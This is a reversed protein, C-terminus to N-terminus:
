DIEGLNLLAFNGLEYVKEVYVAVPKKILSKVTDDVSTQYQIWLYEWGKKADVTIDGIQINEKNPQVAFRFQIEWRADSESYSGSAGLFLCEGVAAERFPANNVTGTLKFLNLRYGFDVDEKNFYHTESFEYVPVTIETGNINEGDFGIIGALEDSAKDGYRGVTEISQFITQTGGGTSFQLSGSPLSGGDSDGKEYTVRARYTTPTIRETSETRKRVLTGDYLPAVATVADLAETEDAVDTVVYDIEIRSTDAKELEQRRGNFLEEVPM